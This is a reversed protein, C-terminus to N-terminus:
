PIPRNENIRNVLNALTQVFTVLINLLSTCIYISSFDLFNSLTFIDFLWQIVKNKTIYYIM